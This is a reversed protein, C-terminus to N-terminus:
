LSIITLGILRGAVPSQHSNNFRPCPYLAFRSPLQV